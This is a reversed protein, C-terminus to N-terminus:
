EGTDGRAWDGLVGVNINQISQLILPDNIGQVSQARHMAATHLDLEALIQTAKAQYQGISQLGQKNGIIGQLTAYIGLVHDVTSLLSQVLTQTRMAYSWSLYMYQRIEQQRFSFDVSTGPAGELGFLATLQADLSQVDWALGQVQLLLAQIQQLDAAWTGADLAWAELGTLDLMQNAIIEATNIATLTTQIATESTQIWNTPDFVIEGFGFQGQAPDSTWIVLGAVLVAAFLVHTRTM